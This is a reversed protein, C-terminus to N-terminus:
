KNNSLYTRIFESQDSAALVCERGHKNVLVSINSLDNGIGKLMADRYLSYRAEVVRQTMEPMRNLSALEFSQKMAALALERHTGALESYGSKNLGARVVSFYASCKAYVASINDRQDATLTPAPQAHAALFFALGSWILILQVKM